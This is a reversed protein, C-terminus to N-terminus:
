SFHCRLRQLALHAAHERRASATVEGIQLDKAAINLYSDDRCGELSAIETGQQQLPERNRRASSKGKINRRVRGTPKMADNSVAAHSATHNTAGRGVTGSAAHDTTAITAGRDTPALSPTPDIRIWGHM